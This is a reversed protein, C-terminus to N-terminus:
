ARRRALIIRVRTVLYFVFGLAMAGTGVPERWGEAAEGGWWWLAFGGVFLLLAIFSHTMLTQNHRIARIRGAREAVEPDSDRAYQCHPCTPAKDSIRKGCGACHILAM